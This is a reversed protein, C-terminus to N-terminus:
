HALGFFAMNILLAHTEGIAEPLTSLLSARFYIEEDFANIAAFLFGAPLLPLARLLLGSSLRLGLVTPILVVLTAVITFIWGFTRWSEGQRIGLWRVPQIPADFHGSVLFFDSRRRKMLWLTAVVMLAIGIGRIHIGLYGVTFTVQPGSFRSKWWPTNGIWTSAAIALYFVLMVGAFQWLPRIKKCAGCIGLLLALVAVKAWFIWTPIPGFIAHWVIDPLSSILLITIWASSILLRRSGSDELASVSATM